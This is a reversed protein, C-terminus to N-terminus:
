NHLLLVQYAASNALSPIMIAKKQCTVIKNTQQGSDTNMVVGGELQELFKNEFSQSLSWYLKNANSFMMM